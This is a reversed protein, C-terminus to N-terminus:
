FFDKFLFVAVALVATADGVFPFMLVADSDVDAQWSNRWKRSIASRLVMAWNQLQAAAVLSPSFRLSSQIRANSSPSFNPTICPFFNPIFSPNSSPIFQPRSSPIFKPRSSPYRTAFSPNSPIICATFALPVGFFGLVWSVAVCVSSSRCHCDAVVCVVDMEVMLATICVTALSSCGGNRFFM